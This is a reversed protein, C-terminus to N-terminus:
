LKEPSSKLSELTFCRYKVRNFFRILSATVGLSYSKLYCKESQSDFAMFDTDIFGLNNGKIIKKDNKIIICFERKEDRAVCNTIKKIFLYLTLKLSPHFLM